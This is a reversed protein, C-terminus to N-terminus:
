LATRVGRSARDSAPSASATFLSRLVAYAQDRQKDILAELTPDAEDGRSAPVRSSLQQAVAITGVDPHIAHLVTLHSAFREAIDAATELACVAYPSFDVPTLVTCSAQSRSATRQSKEAEQEARQRLKAILDQDLTRFYDTERAREPLQLNDGLDDRPETM